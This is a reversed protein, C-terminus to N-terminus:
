QGNDVCWGDSCLTRGYKGRRTLNGRFLETGDPSTVRFMGASDVHFSGLLETVEAGHDMEFTVVRDPQVHLSVYRSKSADSMLASGLVDEEADTLRAPSTSCSGPIPTHRYTTGNITVVKCGPAGAVIMPRDDLWLGGQGDVYWTTWKDSTTVVDGSSEGAVQEKLRATGDADLSVTATVRIGARYFRREHEGVLWDPRNASADAAPWRSRTAAGGDAEVKDADATSASSAQEPTCATASLSLVSLLTFVATSARM